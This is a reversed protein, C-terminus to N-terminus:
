ACHETESEYKLKLESTWLNLKKYFEDKEKATFAENDPHKWKINDDYIVFDVNGLLMEWELETKKNNCEYYLTGGRGGDRSISYKKDIKHRRIVKYTLWLVVLFIFIIFANM